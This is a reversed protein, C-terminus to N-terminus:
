GVAARAGADAPLVCVGTREAMHDHLSTALGPLRGAAYTLWVASPPEPAAQQALETLAAVAQKVLGGCYGDFDDAQQVLDQYWNAGRISLTAKQGQRLRDLADDIQEYLAQD